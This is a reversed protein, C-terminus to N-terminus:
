AAAAFSGVARIGRLSAQKAEIGVIGLGQVLRDAAFIALLLSIKPPDGEHFDHAEIRLQVFQHRPARRLAFQPVDRRLPTSSRQRVVGNAPYEVSRGGQILDRAGDIEGRELCMSNAM